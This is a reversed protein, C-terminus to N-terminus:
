FRFLRKPTDWLIRRRDESGPIWADIDRVTAAYSRGAEHNTWPWDSGWLLRDAGLNELLFHAYNGVIADADPRSASAVELRYPGSLKVYVPRRVARDLLQRIANSDIGPRAGPLTFHDFVLAAPCEALADLVDALQPAAAHVEVHWELDAVDAFLEGHGSFDPIARLGFLNLRIGRVGLVDWRQLTKRDCGPDVVVCARLRDPHAELVSLLWRNDTGLFSPQVLVAHTIGHAEQLAFLDEPLADYSPVYRAGPVLPLGRKFVHTHTDVAKL